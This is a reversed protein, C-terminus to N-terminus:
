GNCKVSQRHKRHCVSCKGPKGRRDWKREIRRGTVQGFSKNVVTQYQEGDRTTFEGQHLNRVALSGHYERIADHDVKKKHNLKDLVKQADFNHNSEPIHDVTQYTEEIM